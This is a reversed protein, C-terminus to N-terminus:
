LADVMKQAKDHLQAAAWATLMIRLVKEVRQQAGEVPSRYGEMVRDIGESIQESTQLEQARSALKVFMFYLSSDDILDDSTDSLSGNVYSLLGVIREMPLVAKLMNMHIIRCLQNINYRKNQPPPLFGRKVWNQVTYPEVGTLSSVQSLVIGGALFMAGFQQSIFEAETRDAELTTGPIIWHM